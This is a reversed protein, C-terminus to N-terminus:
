RLDHFLYKSLLQAETQRDWFLLRNPKPQLGRSENMALGGAWTLDAWEQEKGWVMFVDHERAKRLFHEKKLGKKRFVAM